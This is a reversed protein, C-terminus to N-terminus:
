MLKKEINDILDFETLNITFKENKLFNNRIQINKKM